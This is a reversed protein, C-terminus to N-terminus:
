KDTLQVCNLADISRLCKPMISLCIFAQALCLLIYIFLVHMAVLADQCLENSFGFSFHM